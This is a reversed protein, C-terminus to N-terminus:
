SHRVEINDKGVLETLKTDYWAAAQEPTKDGVMVTDMADQLASSVEPYVAFAPRYYAAEFIDTFFGVTPSYTRYEENKAVDKRTTLNAGSKNRYVLSELTCLEKILEFSLERDRAHTPITWGWGGALTTLGPEEGNQTPMQALGVDDQWTPWPAPGDEAWQNSIWSGDILIGLKGAPFMTSQIAEAINPDLHQSVPLTLKEDFQRKYFALTDIFGQSGAVWKKTEPNYLTDRTGYLLMEFGQMSAKEGQTKGCYMFMGAADVNADRIAAAAEAIEEWTRPQWETPLGAKEFVKKNYYIGRTDTETPVCHARGEPDVAAAQSAPYLNDWGEWGKVLDDIPQIYGAAVDSLLIFTDEFVLDPCSRPSSMLLENKTFYDNEAAVIPVLEVSVGPHKKTFEAIIKTLWQQLTTGSGFQQYAVKLTSSDRESSCGALMALPLTSAIGGTVKLFTRRSSQHTAGRPRDM